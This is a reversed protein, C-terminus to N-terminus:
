ELHLGIDIAEDKEVQIKVASGGNVAGESYSHAPEREAAELAAAEEKKDKLHVWIIYEAPGIPIRQAFEGSHNSPGEWRVKKEGARRVKVDAGYVPRGDAGYVTVLLLAYERKPKNSSQSFGAALAAVCLLAALGRGLFIVERKLIIATRLNKKRKRTRKMRWM